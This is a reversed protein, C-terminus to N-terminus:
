EIGTCTDFVGGCNVIRCWECISASQNLCADLCNSLECTTRQGYCAACAASLSANAALCVATCFGVGPEFLCQLQCNEVEVDIDVADFVAQDDANRCAGAFSGADAPYAADDATVADAAMAADAATAADADTAADRAPGADVPESKGSDVSADLDSGADADPPDIFGPGTGAGGGDFAGADVLVGGDIQNSATFGSGADATFLAFFDPDLGSRGEWICGSLHGALVLIVCISRWGPIRPRAIIRRPRPEGQSLLRLNSLAGQTHTTAM